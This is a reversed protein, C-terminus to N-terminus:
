LARQKDLLFQWCSWESHFELNKRSWPNNTKIKGLRNRSFHSVPCSKFRSKHQAWIHPQPRFNFKRHNHIWLNGSGNLVMEYSYKQELQVNPCSGWLSVVLWKTKKRSKPKLSQFSIICKRSLTELNLSVWFLNKQGLSQNFGCKRRKFWRLHVTTEFKSIKSFIVFKPGRVFNKRRSWKLSTYIKIQSSIQM